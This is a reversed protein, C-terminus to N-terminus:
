PQGELEFTGGEIAQAIGFKIQGLYNDLQAQYRNLTQLAQQRLLALQRQLAKDIQQTITQYRLHLTATEANAKQGQLREDVRDIQAQLDTLQSELKLLARYERMTGQFEPNDLLLPLFRQQPAQPHGQWQALWGSEQQPLASILEDFIDSDIRKKAENMDAIDAEIRTQAARYHEIAQGFAGARSFAYPVALQSEYGYTSRGPRDQLEMWYVLAQQYNEESAYSWGMGLLAVNSLHSKLRVNELYSRAKAPKDFKLLSYGLALSAQDKLAQIEEDEDNELRAIQHLAVIGQKNQHQEILAIGVNFLQYLAWTSQSNARPLAAAAQSIMGKALLAQAETVKRETEQQQNLQRKINALSALAADPQGQELHLKARELWARERVALSVGAQEALASYIDLAPENLGLEIFQRGLFLRALGANDGLRQQAQAAMLMAMARLRDGQQYTYYAHGLSTNDIKEASFEKAQLSTGAMLGALAMAVIGHGRRRTM